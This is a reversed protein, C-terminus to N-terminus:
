RLIVAGAYGVVSDMGAGYARGTQGSTAYAIVRGETAGLSRCAFLAMTMPLVGCMSIGHGRVTNYLGEPDLGAVAKLALADQDAAKEHPVYHSMDSSVILALPRGQEAGHRVLAALAEGAARLADPSGGGITVATVRAGPAHVQLFPMLVELSHERAHALTDAEFGAGSVLLAERAETDVPVSGLPTLWPGGSWVSFKKGAGTHNPGLVVLRDPLAAQGLTMGAVDGSFVYGAHPAMVALLTRGALDVSNKAALALHEAVADRLAKANGPYFRGAVVPSRPTDTGVM